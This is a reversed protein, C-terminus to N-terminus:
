SSVRVFALLLLASLIFSSVCLSEFEQTPLGVTSNDAQTLIEPLHIESAYQEEYEVAVQLLSVARQSDAISERYREAEFYAAASQYESQAQSFLSQADPSTFAPAADLEAKATSLAEAAEEEYPLPPLDYASMPLPKSEGVWSASGIRAVHRSFAHEDTLFLGKLPYLISEHTVNGAALSLCNLVYFNRLQPDSVTDPVRPLCSYAQKLADTGYFDVYARIIFQSYEYSFADLTEFDWTEMYTEDNRYYDALEDYESSYFDSNKVFFDPEELALELSFLHSAYTGMGEEFWFGGAENWSLPDGNFGHMTEHAILPALHEDMADERIFMMSTGVYLGAEKKSTGSDPTFIVTWKEYPPEIGTIDSLMGYLSETEVIEQRIRPTINQAFTEYHETSYHYYGDVGEFEAGRKYILTICSDLSDFHARRTGPEARPESAILIADASLTVDASSEDTIALCLPYSIRLQGYREPAFNELLLRITLMLPGGEGDNMTELKVEDGFSHPTLEYNLIPGHLDSISLLTANAPLDFTLTLKINKATTTYNLLWLVEADEDQLTLDYHATTKTILTDAFTLFSLSLLFLFAFALKVRL